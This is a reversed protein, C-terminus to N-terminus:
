AIYVPVRSGFLDSKPLQVDKRHFDHLLLWFLMRFVLLCWIENIKEKKIDPLQSDVRNVVETRVFKVYLDALMICREEPSASDLDVLTPLMGPTGGAATPMRVTSERRGGPPVRPVPASAVGSGGRVSCMSDGANDNDGGGGDNLIGLVVELHVRFVSEVLPLANETKLHDTCETLADHLAEVTEKSYGAEQQQTDKRQDDQNFREEVRKANDAVALLTQSMWNTNTQSDDERLASTYRCLLHRISFSKRDWPFITPNPLMRFASDKIHFVAGLMGLM